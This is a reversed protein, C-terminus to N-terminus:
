GYGIRSESALADCEASMLARGWQLMRERVGRDCPSSQMEASMSLAAGNFGCPARLQAARQAFMEASMLARGWQLASAADSACHSAARIEASM